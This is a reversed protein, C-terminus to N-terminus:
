SVFAPIGERPHLGDGWMRTLALGARMCQDGDAWPKRMHHFYPVDSCVVRGGAARVRLCLDVDYGHFDPALRESFRISRVVWPAIVLLAGDVVEVEHAGTSHHVEVLPTCARGYLDDTEWWCHLPVDRGGLVGVLGVRPEALLARARAPLSGDRLEMDQHLLVLAELGDLGAAEDLMENYPRQISDHGSRTIIASVPEAVRRISRLGIGDFQDRDSVACGFAIV